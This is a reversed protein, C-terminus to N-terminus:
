VAKHIAGRVVQACRQAGQEPQDAYGFLGIALFFNHEAQFHHLLAHYGHFAEDFFDRVVGAVRTETHFTLGYQNAAEDLLYHFAELVRAPRLSDPDVQVHVGVESQRCVRSPQLHNEVVQDCVGDLIVIEGLLVRVNAQFGGGVPLAVLDTYAVIALAYRALVHVVDEIHKIAGGLVRIARPKTQVNDLFREGLQRAGDVNFGLKLLTGYKANFERGSADAGAACFFGSLTESDRYKRGIAVCSSLRNRLIIDWELSYPNM